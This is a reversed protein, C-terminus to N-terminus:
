HMQVLDHFSKNTFWTSNFKFPSPPKHTGGELILWFPSHDSIGGVGIWQRVQFAEELLTKAMLFHDIQKEVRAEGTNMNRWTPNLKWPTIDLMGNTSLLHTIRTTIQNTHVSPGWVEAEGLSFNLDGGLILNEVKLIKLSLLTERFPTIDLYPGYVNLIGFEKGLGEVFINIGLCSNLARSNLLKISKTRWGTALGGSRGTADIGMFHWRPLLSSLTAFISLSNTMMEQLLIINPEQTNILRKLASKEHPSALGRCNLSLLKM